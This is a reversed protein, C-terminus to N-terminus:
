EAWIVRATLTDSAMDIAGATINQPTVTITNSASVVAHLVIGATYVSMNAQAPRGVVAGTATVTTSAGFSNAAISAFDHTKSGMGRKVGSRLIVNKGRVGTGANFSLADSAGLGFVDVDEFYADVLNTNCVIGLWVGNPDGRGYIRKCQPKYLNEFTAFSNASGCNRGRLGNLEYSMTKSASLAPGKNDRCRLDEDYIFSSVTASFAAVSAVAPQDGTVSLRRRIVNRCYGLNFASANLRQKSTCDELVLGVVQNFLFQSEAVAEAGNDYAHCDRMTIGGCSGDQYLYMFFDSTWRDATYVGAGPVTVATIATVGDTTVRIKTGTADKEFIMHYSASLEAPTVAGNRVAFKVLTGIEMNAWYAAPVTIWGDAAFAEIASVEKGERARGEDHNAGGASSAFGNQGNDHCTVREVLVDDCFIYTIGNKNNDRCVGNRIVINEMPARGTATSYRNAELDIGAGPTSQAGHFIFDEITVNRGEVLSVINRYAGSFDVWRVHVNSSPFLGDSGNGGLYLCDSGNSVSTGGAGQITLGFIHLMGCGSSNIAASTARSSQILTAGFGWLRAKVGVSLRLWGVSAAAPAPMDSVKAGDEMVIEIIRTTDTLLWRSSIYSDGNASKKIRVTKGYNEAIMALGRAACDETTTFGYQASNPQDSAELEWWDGSADQISTYPRVPDAAARKYYGEGGDNPAYYGGVYIRDVAEAIVAGTASAKSAFIPVFVGSVTAADSVYQAALLRDSATAIRDLGTQVRDAGTAIRDLGTQVRDAAAAAAAETATAVSQAFTGDADTIRDEAWDARERLRLARLSGRDLAENLNSLRSGQNSWTQAQSFLPQARVYLALGATATIAVSGGEARSGDLAENLTVAYDEPDFAVEEGDVLAFVELEAATFAKFDFGLVQAAGTAVFPGAVTDTVTITM